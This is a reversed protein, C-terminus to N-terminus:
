HKFADKLKEGARKVDAKAQDAKGQAELEDDDTARGTAEKAKGRLDEIKNDAADHLGM